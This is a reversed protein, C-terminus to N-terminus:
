LLNSVFDASDHPDIRNIIWRFFPQSSARRISRAIVYTFQLSLNIGIEPRVALPEVFPLSFIHCGVSLDLFQDLLLIPKNGFGAPDGVHLVHGAQRHALRRVPLARLPNLRTRRPLHLRDPGRQSMKPHNAPILEFSLSHKSETKVQFFNLIQCTEVRRCIIMLNFHDDRRLDACPPIECFRFKHIHAM